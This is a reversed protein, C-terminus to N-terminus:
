APGSALQTKPNGQEGARVYRAGPSKCGYVARGSAARQAVRGRRERRSQKGAPRHITPLTDRYLVCEVQLVRMPDAAMLKKMRARMAAKKPNEPMAALAAPIAFIRSIRKTIAKTM